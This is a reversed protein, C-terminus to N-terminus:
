VGASRQAALREPSAGPDPIGQAQQSSVPSFALSPSITGTKGGKM